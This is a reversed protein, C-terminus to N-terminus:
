DGEEFFLPFYYPVLPFTGRKKLIVGQSGKKFM